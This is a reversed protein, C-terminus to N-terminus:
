TISIFLITLLELLQQEAQDRKTLRDASLQRTLTRVRSQLAEKEVAVVDATILLLGILAYRVVQM